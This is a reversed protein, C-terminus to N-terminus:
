SITPDLGLASEVTEITREDRLRCVTVQSAFLGKEWVAQDLPRTALWEVPVVMETVDPDDSAAREWVEATREPQDLLSQLQGHIEVRADRAPIMEGTVRGIGVYGAGGVYAFVRSGPTLNRLPKWYWSGGGANLLGYKSAISWRDSEGARGLVVYFDQGNWPAPSSRTPRAAQTQSNQLDTLRARAIGSAEATQSQIGGIDPEVEGIIQDGDIDVGLLEELHWVLKRMSTFFRYGREGLHTETEPDPVVLLAVPETRGPQIGEPWAIDVTALVEGTEDDCIEHHSEPRAIGVDDALALVAVIDPDDEDDLAQPKDPTESPTSARTAPAATQAHPSQLGAQLTDLLENAAAALLDRRAALFEPYRDISWLAQDDPIWQSALVGPNRAEAEAFYEAPDAASIDWNSEATLLCFNALANVQPRTYGADYLRKKPFIHHVHLKSKYGFMGHSLLLGNQLDKAETVRTLIYLLPYFRAGVSWSSFDDPRVELSGRWQAMEEILGDIDGKDLAELDRRIRTEVSGSYRGWLFCHVYWFLLRQQAHVDNISGGRDSVLRALAVLAYNSALVRHHDIGLRSNLLNLLFDVSRAAKKLAVSFESVSVDRLSSFSAQNTAVATACRLLWEQKFFFGSQAWGALLHRLENRAQPSHACLRALALDASSLKTGGSNVRNFIEVVEDISRGDGAIEEIHLDVDGIGLLKMLRTQYELVAKFDETHGAVRTVVDELESQFLDTVSVWLPDDRMKVPGYFEFTERRVDFYLDAFARENGQFFEPPEGRMVGYLSTARQQGDLLLKVAAGSPASGGRVTESDPQTTWVLFGGVPYRRYLSDFLGRVNERGWVYGRQFEPLAFQELEINNLIASIKM